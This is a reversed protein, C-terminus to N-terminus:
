GNKWPNVITKAVFGLWNSLTACLGRSFWMMRPLLLLFLASRSTIHEKNQIKKKKENWYYRTVIDPPTSVYENHVIRKEVFIYSAIHLSCNTAKIPTIVTVIMKRQLAKSIQESMKWLENWVPYINTLFIKTILLIRKVAYKIEYLIFYKTPKKREKKKKHM